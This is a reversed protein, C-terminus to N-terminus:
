EFTSHFRFCPCHSSFRVVEPMQAFTFGPMIGTEKVVFKKWLFGPLSSYILEPKASTAVILASAGKLAETLDDKVVDAIVVADDSVQLDKKLTEKGQM